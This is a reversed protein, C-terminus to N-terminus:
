LLPLNGTGMGERVREKGKGRRGKRTGKGKRKGGRGESEKSLRVSMCVYM